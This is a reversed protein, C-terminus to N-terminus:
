TRCAPIAPGFRGARLEPDPAFPELFTANSILRESRRLTTLADRKFGVITYGNPQFVEDVIRMRDLLSLREYAERARASPLHQQINTALFRTKSSDQLRTDFLRGTTGATIGYITFGALGSDLFLRAIDDVDFQHEHVNLYCDVILANISEENDASMNWGYDFSDFGLDKVLSIGLEFNEKEQGALLSVIRKRRMRGRSGHKGYIYLFLFGDDRVCRVLQRLGAAPDSLHHLVGMCVVIDQREFRDNLQMLNAQIFEVNGVGAEVASQRAIKLPKPSLEIGKFSTDKCALAASILRHGTGTGADLVSKGRLPYETESSFLKLLNALERFQKCEARPSPYPYQDYMESLKQAIRDMVKLSHLYDAM